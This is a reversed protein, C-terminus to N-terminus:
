NKIVVTKPFKMKVQYYIGYEGEKPIISLSKGGRGINPELEKYAKSRKGIAAILIGGKEINIHNGDNTIICDGLFASEETLEVRIMKDTLNLTYHDFVENMIVKPAEPTAPQQPVNANKKKGFLAM